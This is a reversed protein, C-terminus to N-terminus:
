ECANLPLSQIRESGPAFIYQMHVKELATYQKCYSLEKNKLIQLEYSNSTDVVGQIYGITKGLTYGLLFIVVFILLTLVIRISKYKTEM